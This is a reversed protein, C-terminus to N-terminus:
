CENQFANFDFSIASEGLLFPTAGLWYTNIKFYVTKIISCSLSVIDLVGNIIGLDDIAKQLEVNALILKHEAQKREITIAALSTAMDVLELESSKPEYPKNHYVAFTGLLAGCSSLIPQSWAARLNFKLALDRFNAWLRDTEINKVIVRERRFAATGCSGVGEGIKIGEIAQNYNHPLNPAAGFRLCKTEPDFVLVSCIMGSTQDEINRILQDLVSELSADGALLALV